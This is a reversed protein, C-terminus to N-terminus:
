RKWRIKFTSRHLNGTEKPPVGGSCVGKPHMVTFGNEYEWVLLVVPRIFDFTYKLLFNTEPLISLIRVPRKSVRVPELTTKDM